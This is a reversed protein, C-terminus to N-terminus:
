LDTIKKTWVVDMDKKEVAGIRTERQYTQDKRSYNRITQCRAAIHGPQRCNYCIVPLPSTSNQQIKIFRFANRMDAVRSFNRIRAQNRLQMDPIGEILYDILTSENLQLPSALIQKESCYEGFSEGFYWKRSELQRYLEMSSREASFVERLKRFMEQLDMSMLNTQSMFWNEARGKLHKLVILKMIDDDIKFIVKMQQAMNVFLEVNERSTGSYDPLLFFIENLNFIRNSGEGSFPQFREDRETQSFHKSGDKEKARCDCRSTSSEDLSIQVGSNNGETPNQQNAFPLRSGFNESGNAESPEQNRMFM